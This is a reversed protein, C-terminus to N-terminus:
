RTTRNIAATGLVSDTLGQKRATTLMMVISILQLPFTVVSITYGVTHLLATTNDLPQGDRARLEIAMMRMGPTASGAAITFWRYLFSVCAFVLPLFLLAIFVSLVTLLGVILSILVVDIVWAILRKSPVHQYFTADYDPDPLGTMMPNTYAM